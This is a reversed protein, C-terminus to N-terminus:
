GAIRACMPTGIRISKGTDKLKGSAADRVLISVRNSKQNAVFLHKGSPTLAINRPWAGGCPTHEILSLKGSEENVAFVGISDHGRNSLYLFRGDPSLVVDGPYNRHEGAPAGPKTDVVALRGAHSDLSLSVVTADLENAVFVFRGSPHLAVHRPGSGPALAFDSLLTLRGDPAIRYSVLRDTGLDAVIAVNASILENVSHPHSREQREHDPGRGSQAASGLPPTLAGDADIGFAAVAKDPGGGSHAGYNAVLLKSGDRTLTNHVPSNGLTPQKNIHALRGAARDFRYASVTGEPWAEVESNAYIRSGDPTV